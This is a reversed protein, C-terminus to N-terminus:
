NKKLSDFNLFSNDETFLRTYLIHDISKCFLIQPVIHISSLLFIEYEFLTFSNNWQIAKKYCLHMYSCILTLSVIAHKTFLFAHRAHKCYFTSKLTFIRAKTCVRWAYQVSFRLKESRIWHKDSHDQNKDIRETKQLDYFHARELIFQRKRKSLHKKLTSIKTAHWSPFSWQVHITMHCTGARTPNVWTWSGPCQFAHVVIILESKVAIHTRIIHWVFYGEFFILESISYQM